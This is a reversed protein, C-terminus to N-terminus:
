TPSLLALVRVRGHAANFTAHFGQLSDPALTALPPQGAPVRRPAWRLWAFAATALLVIAAGAVLLGKVISPIRV